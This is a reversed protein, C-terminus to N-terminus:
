QIQQWLPGPFDGTLMVGEIVLYLNMYSIYKWHRHRLECGAARWGSGRM